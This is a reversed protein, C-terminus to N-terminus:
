DVDKRQLLEKICVRKCGTEPRVKRKNGEEKSRQYRKFGMDPICNACLLLASHARQSTTELISDPIDFTEGWIAGPKLDVAM